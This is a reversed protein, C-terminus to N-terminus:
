WEQEEQEIEYEGPGFMQQGCAKAGEWTAFGSYFISSNDKMYVTFM